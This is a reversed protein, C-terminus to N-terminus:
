RISDRKQKQSLARQRLADSNAAAVLRENLRDILKIELWLRERNLESKSDRWEQMISRAAQEKIEEWFPNDLLEKAREQQEPTLM